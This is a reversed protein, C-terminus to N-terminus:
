GGSAPGKVKHIYAAMNLRKAHDITSRPRIRGIVPREPKFPRDFLGLCWLLGGYSNADNGDLALRHNLDIMLYLAEQPKHTWNLFAKGWTMRVNNHLEGHVLLSIQASDWLVDGTRARFLREWSYLAERPDDLHDM